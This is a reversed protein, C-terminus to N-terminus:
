TIESVKLRVSTIYDQLHQSAVGSLEEESLPLILPHRWTETVRKQHFHSFYNVNSYEKFLLVIGRQSGSARGGLNVVNM